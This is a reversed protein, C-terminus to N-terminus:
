KGKGQKIKFLVPQKSGYIQCRIMSLLMKNNECWNLQYLSAIIIVNSRVAIIGYHLSDLIIMQKSLIQRHGALNMAISSCYPGPFYINNSQLLGQIGTECLTAVRNKNCAIYVNKTITSM